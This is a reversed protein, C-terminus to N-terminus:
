QTGNQIGAVLEDIDTVCADFGGASSRMRALLSVAKGHEPSITQELAEIRALTEARSQAIQAKVGNLIEIAAAELNESM